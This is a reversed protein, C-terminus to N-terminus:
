KVQLNLDVTAAQVSKVEIITDGSVQKGKYAGKAGLLYFGEKLKLFHVHPGYGPEVMTTFSDDYKIAAPIKKCGYKIYCKGEVGTTGNVPFLALNFNGGKGGPVNEVIPEEPTVVADNKHQCAFAFLLFSLLTLYRTM